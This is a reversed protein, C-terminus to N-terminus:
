TTFMTIKLFTAHSFCVLGAPGLQPALGVHALALQLAPVVEDLLFHVAELADEAAEALAFILVGDRLGVGVVVDGAFLAVDLFLGVAERPNEADAVTGEFGFHAEEILVDCDGLSTALLRSSIRPAAQLPHGAQLVLYYHWVRPSPLQAGYLHAGPAAAAIEEGARVGKNLYYALIVLYHVGDLAVVALLADEAGAEAAAIAGIDLVEDDVVEIELDSSDVVNVVAAAILYEWSSIFKSNLKRDLGILVM